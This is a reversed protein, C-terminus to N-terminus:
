WGSADKALRWAEAPGGALRWAFNKRPGKAWYQRQRVLVGIPSGVGAPDRATFSHKGAMEAASPRPLDAPLLALQAELALSAWASKCM